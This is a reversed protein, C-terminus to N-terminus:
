LVLSGQRHVGDFQEGSGELADQALVAVEQLVGDGRAAVLEDLARVVRLDFCAMPLLNQLLHLRHSRHSGRRRTDLSM